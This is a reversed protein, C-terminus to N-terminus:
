DECNGGRPEGAVLLPRARRCASFDGSRGANGGAAARAALNPTAYYVAEANQVAIEPELLFNIFQHALTVTHAARPIAMSDIWILTGAAPVIVRVHENEDAAQM